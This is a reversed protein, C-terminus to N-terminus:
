ATWVCNTCCARFICKDPNNKSCLLECKALTPDCSLVFAHWPHTNLKNALVPSYIKRPYLLFSLFTLIVDPSPAPPHLSLSECRRSSSRSTQALASRRRSRTSSTLPSIRRSSRMMRRSVCLGTTKRVNFVFCFVLSSSTQSVVPTPKLSVKGSPLGLDKLAQFIGKETKGSAFTRTIRDPNFFFLLAPPLFIFIISPANLNFLSPYFKNALLLLLSTDTSFNSLCVVFYNIWQVIQCMIFERVTAM